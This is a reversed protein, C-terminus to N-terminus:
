RAPQGDVLRDGLDRQLALGIGQDLLKGAALLLPEGDGDRQDSIGLDEEEVLGGGAQVGLRAALEPVHDPVQLIAAPGDQQGGMVHVLGFPEAIAHGDDIMAVDDGLARGALQDGPEPALVDDLEGELAVSRRQIGLREGAQIGHEDGPGVAFAVRQRDGLRVPGDGGQEVVELALAPRQGAQRGAVDAQLIDEHGQRSPVEAVVRRPSGRVSGPLCAASAATARGDDPGGARCHPDGRRFREEM